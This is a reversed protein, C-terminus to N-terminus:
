MACCGGPGPAATRIPRRSFRGTACGAQMWARCIPRAPRPRGGACWRPRSSAAAIPASFAASCTMTRAGPLCSMSGALRWSGRGSCLCQARCSGAIRDSWTRLNQKPHTGRGSTGFFAQQTVMARKMWAISMAISSPRRAPQWRPWHRKSGARTGAIMRISSPLICGMAPVRATIARRPSDPMTRGCGPSGAIRMGAACRPMTTPRVM